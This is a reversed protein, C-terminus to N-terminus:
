LQVVAIQLGGLAVGTMRLDIHNGVDIGVDQIFVSLDTSLLKLRSEIGSWLLTIIGLWVQARHM